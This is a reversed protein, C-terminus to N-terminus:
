QLHSFVYVILKLSGGEAFVYNSIGAWRYKLDLHSGLWCIQELELLFFMWSDIVYMWQRAWKLFPWLNWQFLKLVVVSLPLEHNQYEMNCVFGSLPHPRHEYGRMHNLMWQESDFGNALCVVYVCVCVYPHKLKRGLFRLQKVASCVQVKSITM